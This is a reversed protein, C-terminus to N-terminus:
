GPHVEYIPTLRLNQGLFLDVNGFLLPHHKAEKVKEYPM